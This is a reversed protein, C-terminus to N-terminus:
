HVVTFRSAAVQGGAAVRVWYAGAPLPADWGLVHRGPERLGGGLQAVLRGAVDYIGATVRVAAPGPLDFAFRLPAAGPNPAVSLLRLAAPAALLPPGLAVTGRVAKARHGLLRTREVRVTPPAASRIAVTLVPSGGGLDAGDLALAVVRVRGPGAAAGAALVGGRAGRVGGVRVSGVGEGALEIEAGAVAGEGAISVPVLWTDGGVEEPAAGGAVAARVVLAVDGVNLTGDANVDARRAEDSNPTSSGLVFDIALVADAVDTAGNGDVDGPVSDGTAARAAALVDLKGGGFVSPLADTFGDTRATATLVRRAALIDWEPHLQFLLAVAGTVHPCAQSTGQQIAYRDGALIFFNPFQQPFPSAFSSSESEPPADLSYSSAIEAGPACLEPKTRGDRTPGSNSFSAAAGIVAGPVVHTFGNKDEWRTKSVYAGVTIANRATGPEAIFGEDNTHDVFEAGITTAAIYADFPGTDGTLRITWLGEAPVTPSDIIVISAELDGNEPNAGGVANQIGVVGDVTSTGNSGNSAGPALPGVTKGSPTFLTVSFRSSAEYWLNVV